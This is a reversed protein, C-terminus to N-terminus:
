WSTSSLTNYNKETTNKNKKKKKELLLRCVLHDPSQLESTHEESRSAAMKRPGALLNSARRRKLLAGPLSQLGTRATGPLDRRRRRDLRPAASPPLRSISRSIKLSDHAANPLFGPPLISVIVPMAHPM